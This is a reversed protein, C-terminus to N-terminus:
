VSQSLGYFGNKGKLFGLSGVYLIGRHSRSVKSTCKPAIKRTRLDSLPLFISFGRRFFTQNLYLLFSVLM